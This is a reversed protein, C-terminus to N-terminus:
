IYLSTTVQNMASYKTSTWGGEGPTLKMLTKRLAKLRTSGLLMFLYQRSLQFKLSKPDARMFAALLINMFNVGPDQSAAVIV